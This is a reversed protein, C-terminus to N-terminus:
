SLSYELYHAPDHDRVSDHFMHRWRPIRISPTVYFSHRRRWSSLVYDQSINTYTRLRTQKKELHAWTVHLEELHRGFAFYVEDIDLGVMLDELGGGTLTSTGLSSGLSLKTFALRLLSLNWRAWNSETTFFLVVGSARISPSHPNSCVFATKLLLTIGNRFDKDSM